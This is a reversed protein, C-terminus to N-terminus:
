TEHRERNKVVNNTHTINFFAKLTLTENGNVKFKTKIMKYSSIIKYCTNAQYRNRHSESEDGPMFEFNPNILWHYFTTLISLYFTNHAGFSYYREPSFDNIVM